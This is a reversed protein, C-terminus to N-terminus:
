LIFLSIKGTNIQLSKSQKTTSTSSTLQRLTSTIFSTQAQTAVTDCSNKTLTFMQVRGNDKDTVYINGYNDFSMSYPNKLQSATSGALGSCGVLCKYGDANSGIIRHNNQDVLFLYGDTDLLIASPGNLTFTPTTSGSGVVTIGNTQGYLFKQIRNNNGDAVYLDFNIDVFIGRPWNLTNPTNGVTGTGAVTETMNGRIKLSIKIVKHINLSCYLTNNEDIFLGYCRGGAFYTVISSRTSNKTWKNIQNNIYGNDVFIDGNSSVILGLPDVLDDTLTRTVNTSSNHWIQVRNSTRDTVHITGNINVFVTGPNSGIISSNAFTTGNPNWLACRSFKPRNISVVVSLNRYKSQKGFIFMLM